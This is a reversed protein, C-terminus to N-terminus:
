RKSKSFARSVGMALLEDIDNTQMVKREFDDPASSRGRSVDPRPVAKRNEASAIRAKAKKKAPEQRKAVSQEVAKGLLEVVDDTLRELGDISASYPNAQHKQALEQQLEPYDQLRAVQKLMLQNLRQSQEAQARAEPTPERDLIAKWQQYAQAEQSGGRLWDLMGDPDDEFHRDMNLTWKIWQRQAELQASAILAADDVAQRAHREGYKKLAEVRMSGPIESYRQPGDKFLADAWQDASMKAKPEDGEVEASETTDPEEEEDLEDEDLESDPEDDEDPAEQEEQDEDENDSPSIVQSIYDLALSEPTEPLEFTDASPASPRAEEAVETSGDVESVM